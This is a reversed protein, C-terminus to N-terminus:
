PTPPASPGPMPTPGGAPTSSRRAAIASRRSPKRSCRRRRRHLGPLDQAVPRHRLRRDLRQERGQGRLWARGQARALAGRAVSPRVGARDGAAAGARDAAKARCDGGCGSGAQAVREAAAPEPSSFLTVSGVQQRVGDEEVEFDAASLDTVPDGRKDRVVIDVLIATADSKVTGTARQAPPAQQQAVLPPALLGALVVPIWVQRM